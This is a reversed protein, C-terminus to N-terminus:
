VNRAGKASQISHLLPNAGTAALGPHGAQYDLTSFAPSPDRGERAGHLLYHEVPDFGAGVVDPYREKYWAEDFLGSGRVLAVEAALGDDAGGAALRRLRGAVRRLISRRPVPQATAPAVASALSASGRSELMRTLVAVENFRAAVEAQLAAVEAKVAEAEQLKSELEQIRRYAQGLRTERDSVVARLQEPGDAGGNSGVEEAAGGASM